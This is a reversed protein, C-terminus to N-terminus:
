DCGEPGAESYSLILEIQYSSSSDSLKSDFAASTQKMISIKDRWQGHRQSESLFNSSDRKETEENSLM